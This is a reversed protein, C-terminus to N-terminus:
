KPENIGNKYFLDNEDFLSLKIMMEIVIMITLNNFMMM